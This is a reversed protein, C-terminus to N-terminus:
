LGPLGTLLKERETIPLDGLVHQILVCQAAMAPLARADLPM